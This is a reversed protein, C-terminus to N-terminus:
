EATEKDPPDAQGSFEAEGKAPPDPPSERKSEAKKTVTKKPTTTKKVTTAKKPESKPETFKAKSKMGSWGLGAGAGALLGEEVLEDVAERVHPVLPKSLLHEGLASYPHVFIVGDEAMRPLWALIIKKVDPDDIDVILLDIPAQPNRTPFLANGAHFTFDAERGVNKAALEGYAGENRNKDIGWIHLNGEPRGELVSLVTTGSGSGLDVATLYRDAPFRSMMRWIAEVDGEAIMRRSAALKKAESM